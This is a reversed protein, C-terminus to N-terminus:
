KKKTVPQRRFVLAGGELRSASGGIVANQRVVSKRNLKDKIHYQLNKGAKAVQPRNNLVKVTYEGVKRGQAEKKQKKRQENLQRELEAEHDAQMAEFDAMTLHTRKPAAATDDQENNLAALVDQPLRGDNDDQDSDSKAEAEPQQQQQQKKL